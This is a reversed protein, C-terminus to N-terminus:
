FTGRIIWADISGHYGNVDGDNSSTYGGSVYNRGHTIIISNALDDGSGGHSKQGLINGSEDMLVIWADGRGHNGSADGNNSTSTGAFTYGVHPISVISKAEEGGSGGIAKQWLKNGNNDVKVVWADYFGGHNGSVDGDNSNTFGALIYGDDSGTAVSRGHDARSGGFTKQWLLNGSGDLKFLWADASGHNGSVDGNNSETQGTILYGSGTAIISHAMDHNTGGYAKHWVVNGIGDLKIIWADAPIGHNNGGDGDNSQTYGAVVYGGDASRTISLANDISSGGLAKQWLLNGAKDVKIVWADWLIFEISGHTGTVDGDNSQTSGAIVYGGDASKVISSVSESRSGGFSKQWLINGTRGVNVLWIDTMGRNGSVDGDNSYSTAALMYGGEANTVISYGADGGSGGYVKSFPPQIFSDHKHCALALCLIIVMPLRINNKM